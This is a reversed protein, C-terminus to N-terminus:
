ATQKTTEPTNLNTQAVFGAFKEIFSVQEESQVWRPEIRRVSELAELATYGELILQAALMTGTRGLGAKCHYAVPLGAQMYKIVQQCMSLAEVFDPSSMDTIKLWLGKIDYEALLKPDFRRTTLSVLVKIGVRKLAALDYEEASVIGPRPTGALLGKKLWLFGRPGFSDSVYERASEPVPPPTPVDSFEDIEEERANASPISCSGSRIFDKTVKNQPESFFTETPSCEQIWGGALLANVGNIKKAQEQNHLVVIIAMSDGLSNIYDLLRNGDAESIDATPEDICLLKPRAAATRAIALHRQLVLPLDVVPADIDDLLEELGAHKLLREALERQQIKNLNNKEPLDNIINEFVSALMLRAKQAVLCPLEGKGLEDGLYRAEGWTRLTSVADNIGCITRLLTSKGTGCPGLLTLLGKEPVNLDVSRLIIRDGFAVGFKKLELLHTGM